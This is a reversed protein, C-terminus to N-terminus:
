NNACQKYLYMGGKIAYLNAFFELLDGIIGIFFIFPFMELPDISGIYISRFFTSIVAFIPVLFVLLRATLGEFADNIRYYWQWVLVSIYCTFGSTIGFNLSEIVTFEGGIFHYFIHVLVIGLFAIWGYIIAALLCIGVPLNFPIVKTGLKLKFYTM